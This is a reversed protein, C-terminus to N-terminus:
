EAVVAGSQYRDEANKAVRKAVIASVIEPVSREVDHALPPVKALHAHVREMPDDTTFLARGTLM